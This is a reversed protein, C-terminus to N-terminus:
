GHDAEKRCDRRFETVARMANLATKSDRKAVTAMRAGAESTDRVYVRLWSSGPYAGANRLVCIDRDASVREVLRQNIALTEIREITITDPTM